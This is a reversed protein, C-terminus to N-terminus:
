SIPSEPTQIADLMKRADAVAAIGDDAGSMVSLYTLLMQKENDTEGKQQYVRALDLLTLTHMPNDNLNETLVQEAQDLQGAKLYARGLLFRCFIVDPLGTLETASKFHSIADEYNGKDLAIKGLLVEKNVTMGNLAMAGLNTSDAERILKDQYAVCEEAIDYNGMGSAVVGRYTPTSFWDPHKESLDNFIDLAQQSDGRLYLTYGIQEEERGAFAESRAFEKAREFYGIADRYRGIERYAKALHDLVFDLDPKIKNATEFEKIAEDYRGLYMLIEGYSDHPNAQQGAIISYKKISSLAEDYNRAYYNLYGLMNYGLAYGPEKDIIKQYETIAKDYDRTGMYHTAQYIHTMIDDPYLKGFEEVYKNRAYDDRGLNTQTIQILLQEKRTIKPFLALAKDLNQRAQVSDGFGSQLEAIRCYAMAFNSDIKVAKEYEPLADRYYLKIRYSEGDMFAQYAKDSSTTFERNDWLAYIASFVVLALFAILILKKGM